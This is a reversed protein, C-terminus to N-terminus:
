EGQAAEDAAPVPKASNARVVPERAPRPRGPGTPDASTTRDRVLRGLSSCATIMRTKVL